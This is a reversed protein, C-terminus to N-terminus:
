RFRAALCGCIHGVGVNREAATLMERLDRYASALDAATRQEALKGSLPSAAQAGSKVALAEGLVGLAPRLVAILPDRKYKELKWLTETARLRDGDAFADLLAEALPDRQTEDELERAAQGLFGGGRRYAARIAEPPADPFRERLWATAEAEPVPALRLEACRSRITPLLREARDTLLLFVGYEPPEELVKLLANQAAAKMEQARPFLYIKHRGENPRIYLDAKAERALDVSVNKKEPDDVTVVDPHSGDLVKRCQDCVCCPKEPATCQLAACLLRALTRKGSGEPGCLLYSHATAGSRLAATLASQLEANGLLRHQEM